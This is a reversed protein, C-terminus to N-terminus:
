AVCATHQFKQQLGLYKKARDDGLGQLVVERASGHSNFGQCHWPFFISSWVFTQLVSGMLERAPCGETAHHAYKSLCRVKDGRTLLLHFLAIIAGEFEVGRPSSVTYPSFAKWIISECINTAIFLSIGSGLGYGHQLMEDLCIVLIGALFLQM